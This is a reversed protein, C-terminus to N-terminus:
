LYRRWRYCRHYCGGPTRAASHIRVRAGCVPGVLAATMRSARSRRQDDDVGARQSVEQEATGHRKRRHISCEFPALM